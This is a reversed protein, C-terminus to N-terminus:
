GKQRRYLSGFLPLSPVKPLNREPTNIEALHTKQIQRFALYLFPPITEAYRGALRNPEQVLRYLWELGNERIWKPAHSRMRAYVPFVAGVGVMVSSVKQYNNLMWSEQKPCGLSVFTVGAGSENIREVTEAKEELSLTRFPPSEMGAVELEPFDKSLREKMKKLVAQTSGLLYISIGEEECRRCTNEFIDMGAVRNQSAVGLAHMVWVLPMGDPTVLHANALAKRLSSNKRSEILMHVNAVCVIKSLGKSAWRVMWEVQENLPLATISTDVVEVNPLTQNLFEESYTIM